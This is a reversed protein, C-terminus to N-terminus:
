ECVLVQRRFKGKLVDCRDVIVYGADHVITDIPEITIIVVKDAFRRASQLMTLKEDVTIVSCLNYPMDIIAVDFHDRIDRIDRLIVQGKLGFHAINERAGKMVLPNNDSGVINIGMSLAEVLVTGIGCCPDIAKIGKPNPVAINVIARAVRTSLATSYHHPKQQHLFWISESEVYEGFAWKEDIKIVAYVRDPHKLDPTGTLALGIEREIKRRVEYGVKEVHAGKSQNVVIVKFTTELPPLGRVKVLLEEITNAKVMVNIRERIFPSRSPEIKIDSEIMMRETDIGFLARRELRSLDLEEEPGSFTYIYTSPEHAHVALDDM